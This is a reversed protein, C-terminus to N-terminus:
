PIQKMPLEIGFPAQGPAVAYVWLGHFADKLEPHVQLMAQMVAINQRRAAALNITDKANYHMVLDLGGLADSTEMQTIDFTQGNATLHMPQQGPMGSPQVSQQEHMLKELNTSSLYDVPTALYRATAFYFYANWKENKGAYVRAQKWYWLSDHSAMALQRSSFGALKWQGKTEAFIVAIQQPNAIGTAHILVLGYRAQPLNGLTITASAPLNFAGCYFRASAGPKLDTADLLYLNDVTFTADKVKVAVDSVANLIGSTDGAVQPAIDAQLTKIDDTAVSQTLKQSADTLANRETATLEAQTICTQGQLGLGAGALLCVCATAALRNRHKRDNYSHLM